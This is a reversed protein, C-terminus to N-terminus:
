GTFVAFYFLLWLKSLSYLRFFASKKGFYSIHIDMNYTCSLICSPADYWFAASEFQNIPWCKVFLEISQLTKMKTVLCNLSIDILRLM